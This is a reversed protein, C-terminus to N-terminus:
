DITENQLDDPIATSIFYWKNNNKQYLDFGNVGVNTMHDMKFNNKLTWRILLKSTNTSFSISVGASNESLDWVEKRVYDKYKQPFRQFKYKRSCNPELIGQTHETKIKLFKM